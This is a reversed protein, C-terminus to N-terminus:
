KLSKKNEKIQFNTAHLVIVDNYVLNYILSLYKM